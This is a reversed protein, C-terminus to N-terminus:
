EIQMIKNKNIEYIRKEHKCNVYVKISESYELDIHTIIEDKSLFLARAIRDIYDVHIADLHLETSNKTILYRYLSANNLNQKIIINNFLSLCKIEGTKTNLIRFCYPTINEATENETLLDIIIKPIENDCKSKGVLISAREETSCRNLLENYILFHDNFDETSANRNYKESLSLKRKLTYKYFPYVSIIPNNKYTEKKLQKFYSVSRRFYCVDGCQLPFSFDEQVNGDIVFVTGKRFVIIERDFYRNKDIAYSLNLEQQFIDNIITRLKTNKCFEYNRVREGFGYVKIAYTVESFFIISSILCIKFVGNLFNM